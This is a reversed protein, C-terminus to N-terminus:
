KTNSHKKILQIMAVDTPKKANSYKQSLEKLAKDRTNKTNNHNQSLESLTMDPNNRIAINEFRKIMAVDGPIKSTKSMILDNCYGKPVKYQQM